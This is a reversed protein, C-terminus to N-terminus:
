EVEDVTDVRITEVTNGKEDEVTISDDEEWYKEKFAEDYISKAFKIAEEKNDFFTVNAPEQGYNTQEWEVVRFFKLDKLEM